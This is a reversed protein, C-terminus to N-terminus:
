NIIKKGRNEVYEILKKMKTVHENNEYATKEVVEDLKQKSSPQISANVKDEINESITKKSEQMETLFNKYKDQSETITGVKKFENIIKIKDEQTLALSENVLLNNVHALNTNFIAMEKLQNRYKELATKYSEVLKVSSDKTKKAENLKKTLKKNEEVLGAIRKNENMEGRFRGHTGDHDGLKGTTITGASHSVGMAEEVAEEGLVADIDADTIEEESINPEDVPPTVEEQVEEQIDGNMEQLMEDIQNKMATLKTYADGGQGKTSGFNAKPRPLGEMGDIKEELSEMESIEQEIDEFSITDDDGANDLTEEVSDMDLDSIDFSEDVKDKKKSKETFPKGDGVTDTIKVDEEVTDKKEGKETFPAGDGVKENVTDPNAGTKETFPKDDGITDSISVNSETAGNSVEQTKEEFPPKNVDTSKIDVTEEVNEKKVKTTEKEQKKMDSEKKTTNKDSVDSEEKKDEIKKYSEKINRKNKNLEEKLISNFKDPFEEALKKKANANAVEVISNYDTIADKIISSKKETREM